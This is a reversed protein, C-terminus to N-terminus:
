LKFAGNLTRLGKYSEGPLQENCRPQRRVTAPFNSALCPLQINHARTSARPVRLLMFGRPHMRLAPAASGRSGSRGRSGARASAPSVAGDRELGCVVCVGGRGVGRWVCM